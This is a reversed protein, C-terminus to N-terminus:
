DPEETLEVGLWAEAWAVASSVDADRAIVVQLFADLPFKSRGTTWRYAAAYSAGTIDMVEQISPPPDALALFHECSQGVRLKAFAAAAREVGLERLEALAAARTTETHTRRNWIRM